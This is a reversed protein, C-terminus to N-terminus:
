LQCLFFWNCRSLMYMNTVFSHSATETWKDQIRHKVHCMRRMFNTYTCEFLCHLFIETFVYFFNIEPLRKMRKMKSWIVFSLDRGQCRILDFMQKSHKLICEFICIKKGAEHSCIYSKSPLYHDWHGFWKYIRPASKPVYKQMKCLTMIAKLTIILSGRGQKKKENGANNRVWKDDNWFVFGFLVFRFLFQPGLNIQFYLPFKIPHTCVNDKKSKLTARAVILLLLKSDAGQILKAGVLITSKIGILLIWEIAHLTELM